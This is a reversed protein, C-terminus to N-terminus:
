GPQKLDSPQFTLEVDAFDSRYAAPPPGLPSVARVARMVSTDYSGDGSPETVRLDVITGDDAVRFRVKVQLNTSAGAWVWASRIRSLMQNYYLLFEVGRVKGAGGAGPGIGIGRRADPVDTGGVGGGPISATGTANGRENAPGQERGAGDKVRAQVRAMAEAIQSDRGSPSPTPLPKGKGGPTASPSPAAHAAGKTPVPTARAASPSPKAANPPAPRPTASPEPRRTPVPTPRATPPATPRATPRATAPPTPRATPPPTPPPTAMATPMVMQNADRPEPENKAVEVPPPEPAKPAPPEPKPQEAPPPPPPPPEPKAVEPPKEPPPKKQAPIPRLRKAAPPGINVDPLGAPLHGGLEGGDVMSVTYAENEVQPRLQFKGVLFVLLLIVAHAAFAIAILTALRRDFGRETLIPPRDPNV